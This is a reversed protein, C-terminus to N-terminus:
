SEVEPVLEQVPSYSGISNGIGLMRRETKSLYLEGSSGGGITWSQSYGLASMSGQNAGIPIGPDTSGDGLVRVVMQCSVYKKANPDAGAAYADIIAAAGDLLTECRDQSAEDLTWTLWDQVDEKTAYAM